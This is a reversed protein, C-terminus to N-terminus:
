QAKLIGTEAADPFNPRNSVILLRERSSRLLLCTSTDYEYEYSHSFYGLNAKRTFVVRMIRSRCHRSSGPEIGPPSM